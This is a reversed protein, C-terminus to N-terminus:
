IEMVAHELATALCKLTWPLVKYKAARRSGGRPRGLTLVQAPSARSALGLWLCAAAAWRCPQRAALGAAMAATNRERGDENPSLASPPSQKQGQYPEVRAGSTFLNPCHGSAPQQPIEVMLNPHKKQRM